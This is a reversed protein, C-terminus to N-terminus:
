IKKEANEPLEPWGTDYLATVFGYVQGGPEENSGFEQVLQNIREAFAQAREAPIRAYSVSSHMFRDEESSSAIEKLAQALLEVGLAQGKDARKSVSMYTRAVRGYYRETMARVQRTQVVKILGAEVLVRVHHAMTSTPCGLTAALEGITAAREGLLNLVKQRLPDGLAKFQEPTELEFVDVMEYDPQM